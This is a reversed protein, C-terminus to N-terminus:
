VVVDVMGRDVRVQGGTGIGGCVFVVVVLMVVVGLVVSRGTVVVMVVGVM